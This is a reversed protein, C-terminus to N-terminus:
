GSSIWAHLACVATFKGVPIVAVKANWEMTEHANLTKNNNNNCKMTQAAFYQIYTHHHPHSKSDGTVCYNFTSFQLSKEYKRQIHTTQKNKARVFLIKHFNETQFLINHNKARIFIHCFIFNYFQCCIWCVFLDFAIPLLSVKSYYVYAIQIRFVLRVSFKFRNCSKQTCDGCWNVLM